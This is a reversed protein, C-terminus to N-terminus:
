QCINGNSNYVNCMVNSVITLYPGNFPIDNRWQIASPGSM